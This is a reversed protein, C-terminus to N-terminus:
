DGPKRIFLSRAGKVRQKYTSQRNAQQALAISRGGRTAVMLLRCGRAKRPDSRSAPVADGEVLNPRNGKGSALDASPCSRFGVVAVVFPRECCAFRDNSVLDTSPQM